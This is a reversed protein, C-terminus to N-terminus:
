IFLLPLINDIVEVAENSIYTPEHTQEKSEAHEADIIFECVFEFSPPKTREGFLEVILCLM